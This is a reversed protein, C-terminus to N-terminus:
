ASVSCLFSWITIILFFVKFFITLYYFRVLYDEAPSQIVSPDPRMKSMSTNRRMVSTFLWPNCHEVINTIGSWPFTDIQRWGNGKRWINRHLSMMSTQYLKQVNQLRQSRITEWSFGLVILTLVFMRNKRIRCLMLSWMNLLFWFDCHFWQRLTEKIKSKRKFYTWLTQYIPSIM